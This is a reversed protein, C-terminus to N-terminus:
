SCITQVHFPYDVPNRNIDLTEVLVANPNNPDPSTFVLVPTFVAPNTPQTVPIGVSAVYSCNGMGINFPVEWQGMQVRRLSSAVVGHGRALSGTTGIVAWQGSNGCRTQLQFPHNAQSGDLNRTEIYVGRTSRHGQAVAIVGATVATQKHPDGITAVYSCNRMDADFTVEYEGPGLLKVGKAHSGRVLNGASDSVAWIGRRECQIQLQFPLNAATGDNNMTEVLVANNSQPDSATFVLGGNQLANAPGVITAVYSCASVDANAMVEFQGTTPRKAELIGIQETLNANADVVASMTPLPAPPPPPSSSSASPAHSPGTVTPTSSPLGAALHDSLHTPPNSPRLALVVGAIVALAALATALKPIWGAILPVSERMGDIHLPATPPATAVTVQFPHQQPRGLWRLPPQVSLAVSRSGPAVPITGRPTEFRLQASPDTATIEVPEVVNGTNTMDIRHVTRRRGTTRQPVLAADLARFEGVDIVGTARVSVVTNLTSAVAVTFDARGPLTSSHKPPAFRITCDARNGPYIQLRPPDTTAWIGAPGLVSVVFEEVQTGGNYVTATTSTTAGPAVALETAALTVSGSAYQTHGAARATTGGATGHPTPSSGPRQRAEWGLYEGCDSGVCFRAGDVNQRGCKPCVIAM